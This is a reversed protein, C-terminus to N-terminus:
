SGLSSLLTRNGKGAGCFLCGRATKKKYEESLHSFHCLHQAKARQVNIIDVLYGMKYPCPIALLWGLGLRIGWIGLLTSYMPSKTDKM